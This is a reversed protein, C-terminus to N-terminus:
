AGRDRNSLVAITVACGSLSVAVGSLLIAGPTLSEARNSAVMQIGLIACATIALLALVLFVAANRTRIVLVITALVVLLLIGGLTLALWMEM